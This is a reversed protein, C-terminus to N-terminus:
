LLNRKMLTVAYFQIHFWVFLFKSLSMIVFRRLVITYVVFGVVWAFNVKSFESINPHMRPFPPVADASIKTIKNTRFWTRQSKSKLETRMRPHLHFLLPVSLFNNDLPLVIYFSPVFFFTSCNSFHDLFSYFM